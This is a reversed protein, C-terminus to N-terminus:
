YSNVNLEYQYIFLSQWNKKSSNKQFWICFNQNTQKYSEKLIWSENMKKRIHYFHNRYKM